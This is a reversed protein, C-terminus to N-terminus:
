LWWLSLVSQGFELKPCRDITDVAPGIDGGAGGAPAALLPRPSGDIGPRLRHPRSLHCCNSANGGLYLKPYSLLEISTPSLTPVLLQIQFRVLLVSILVLWGDM